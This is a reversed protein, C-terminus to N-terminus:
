RECIDEGGDDPECTKDMVREYAHQMFKQADKRALVYSGDPQENLEILDQGYQIGVLSAGENLGVSSDGEMWTLVIEVEIKIEEGDKM